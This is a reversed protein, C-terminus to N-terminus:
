ADGLCKPHWNIDSPDYRGNQGYDYWHMPENTPAMKCLMEIQGITEPRLPYRVTKRMWLTRNGRQEIWELYGEIGDQGTKSYFCSPKTICEVGLMYITIYYSGHGQPTVSLLRMEWERKLEESRAETNIEATIDGYGVHRFEKVYAAKPRLAACITLKYEENHKPDAECNERTLDCDPQTTCIYGWQGDFEPPMQLAQAHDGAAIVATVALIIGAAAIVNKTTTKM